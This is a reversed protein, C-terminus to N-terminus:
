KTVKIDLYSNSAVGDVEVRILDGPHLQKAPEGSFGKPTVGYLFESLQKGQSPFPKEPSSKIIWLM